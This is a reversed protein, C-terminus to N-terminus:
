VSVSSSQAIDVDNAVDNINVIYRGEIETLLAAILRRGRESGMLAQAKLEPMQVAQAARAKQIIEYAEADSIAVSTYAFYRQDKQLLDPGTHGSEDCAIDLIDTM